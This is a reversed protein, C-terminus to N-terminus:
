VYMRVHLGACGRMRGDGKGKWGGVRDILWWPGGVEGEGVAGWVVAINAASEETLAALLMCSKEMLSAVPLYRDM